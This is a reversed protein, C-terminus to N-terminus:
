RAVRLKVKFPLSERTWINKSSTISPRYPITSLIAPELLALTKKGRTMLKKMKITGEFQDPSKGPAPETPNSPTILPLSTKIGIRRAGVASRFVVIASARMAM